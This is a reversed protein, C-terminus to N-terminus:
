NGRLARVREALRAFAALREARRGQNRPSSSVLVHVEAALPLGQRRWREGLGLGNFCVIRPRYAEVLAALRRFGAAYEAAALGDANASPRKVVDTLGLGFGPLLEDEGPGRLVRPVLGTAHLDEWFRNTGRPYYHAREVALLSPNFGVFLVDLDAAIIDDLTEVGEVVIRRAM